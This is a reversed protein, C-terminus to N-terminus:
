KKVNIAINLLSVNFQDITVTKLCKCKQLIMHCQLSSYHFQFHLKAMVPIFSM